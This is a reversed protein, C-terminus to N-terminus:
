YIKKKDGKWPYSMRVMRRSYEESDASVVAQIQAGQCRGIVTNTLALPVGAANLPVELVKSAIVKGNENNQITTNARIQDQIQVPNSCIEPGSLHRIQLGFIEQLFFGLALVVKMKM